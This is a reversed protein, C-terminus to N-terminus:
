PRSGRPHRLGEVLNAITSPGIWNGEDDSADFAHAEGHCTICLLAANDATTEGGYAIPTVHHLHLLRPLRPEYGCAECRAGRIALLATRLKHTVARAGRRRAAESEIAAAQTEEFPQEPSPGIAAFQAQIAPHDSGALIFVIAGAGDSKLYSLSELLELAADLHGRPVRLVTAIGGLRPQQYRWTDIGSAVLASLLSM